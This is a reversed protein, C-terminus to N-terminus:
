RYKSVVLDLREELFPAFRAEIQVEGFVLRYPAARLEPPVPLGVLVVRTALGAEVLAAAAKLDPSLSSEMFLPTFAASEPTAQHLGMKARGKRLSVAESTPLNQSRLYSM